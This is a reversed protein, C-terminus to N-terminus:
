SMLIAFKKEMATAESACLAYSGASESGCAGLRCDSAHKEGDNVQVLAVRQL